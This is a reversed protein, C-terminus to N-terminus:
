KSYLKILNNIFRTVGKKTINTHGTEKKYFELFTIPLEIVITKGEEEIEATVLKKRMINM